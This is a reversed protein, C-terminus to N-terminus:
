KKAEIMKIAQEIQVDPANNQEEKNFFFEGKVPNFTNVDEKARRTPDKLRQFAKDIEMFKETHKEPDFKKVLTFYATKIEEFAATKSVGLTEYASKDNKPAGGNM